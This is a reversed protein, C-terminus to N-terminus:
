GNSRGNITNHQFVRMPRIYEDAHGLFMGFGALVGEDQSSMCALSQGLAVEPRRESVDCPDRMVGCRWPVGIPGVVTSRDFSDFHITNADDDSSISPFPAQGEQGNM